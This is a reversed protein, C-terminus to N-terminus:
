FEEEDLEEVELEASSNFFSKDQESASTSAVPAPRSFGSAMTISSRKAVPGLSANSTNSTTASFGGGVRKLPSLNNAPRSPEISPKIPNASTASKFSPSSQLEQILSKNKPPSDFEDIDDDDRDQSDNPQSSIISDNEDDHHNMASVNSNARHITFQAPDTTSRTRSNVYNFGSNDDAANNPSGMVSTTQPSYFQDAPSFSIRKSEGASSSRQRANLEALLPNTNVDNSVPIGRTREDGNSQNLSAAPLTANMNNNNYNNNVPMKSPSFQNNREIERREQALMQQQQIQTQSFERQRQKEELQQERKLVNNWANELQQHGNYENNVIHDSKQIAQKEEEQYGQERILESRWRSEEGDAVEPHDTRMNDVLETFSQLSALLDQEDHQYKSLLSPFASFTPYVKEQHTTAASRARLLKREHESIPPRQPSPTRNPPPTFPKPSSLVTKTKSPSSSRPATNVTLSYNNREQQENIGLQNKLKKIEEMLEQRTQEIMRSQKAEFRKSHEDDDENHPLPTLPIDGRIVSELKGHLKSIKENISEIQSSSQSNNNNSSSNDSQKMANITAVTKEAVKKEIEKTYNELWEQTMVPGAPQQPPTVIIPAPRVFQKTQQNQKEKEQEWKLKEMELEQKQRQFEKKLEERERENEERRQRERDREKEKERERDEDRRDDDFKNNNRKSTFSEDPHRRNIHSQLYVANIFSSRCFMCQHVEGGTDMSMNPTQQTHHPINSINAKSGNTEHAKIIKKLYKIEQKQKDILDEKDIMVAKARSLQITVAEYTKQKSKQAHLLYNQVNLLYEIILQSLRFLQIISSDSQGYLDDENIDAFTLSEVHEQLTDVDVTAVVRELDLTNISRWDLKGNRRRFFFETHPNHPQSHSSKHPSSFHNTPVGRHPTYLPM